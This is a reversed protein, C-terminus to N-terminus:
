RVTERNQSILLGGITLATGVVVGITLPEGLIIIAFVTSVVPVLYIFTTSATAGLRGVAIGWTVFCAASAILGLFLFNLLNIGDLFLPLSPVPLGFLLIVPFIFVLGWLFIRKTSAITEYGLDSIKNVLISYIAWTLAALLALLDGFLNSNGLLSISSGAELSANASSFSVVILGIMAMAFGIFFRPRLNSRDGLAASILATFLPSAAIIVSAVTATTYVLAINELLYYAAIGMLGAGIFLWEHHRDHLKLIHPRIIALALFGLVFRLFLVWLPSFSQLLVKTSVFTIGWVFVTFLAILYYKM